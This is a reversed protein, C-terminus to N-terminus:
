PTGKPNQNFDFGTYAETDRNTTWTHGCGCTYTATHEGDNVTADTPKCRTGCAPCRDTWVRTDM